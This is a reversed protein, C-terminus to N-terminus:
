SGILLLYILLAGVMIGGGFTLLAKTTDTDFSQLSDAAVLGYLAFVFLIVGIVALVTAVYFLTQKKQQGM